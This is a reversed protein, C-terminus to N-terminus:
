INNIESNLVINENQMKEVFGSILDVSPFSESIGKSSKFTFKESRLLDVPAFKSYDSFNIQGWYIGVVENNQNIVMSGSSGGGMSAFSFMLDKSINWFWKKSESQYYELSNEPAPGSYDQTDTSVFDSNYFYSSTQLNSLGIWFARNSGDSMEKVPYGGMYYTSTDSSYDSINYSNSFKTPNNNFYKLFNKLSSNVNSFDYELVAFDSTANNIEFEKTSSMKYMVDGWAETGDYVIKPTAVNAYASIPIVDGNRDVEFNNITPDIFGLKSQTIIYGKKSQLQNNEFYQWSKGQNQITSAVHLNTALFYNETNEQKAMIWGTGNVRYEYSDTTSFVNFEISFSRESIFKLQSSAKLYKKDVGSYPDVFVKKDPLGFCSVLFVTSFGM